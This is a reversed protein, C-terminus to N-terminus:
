VCNKIKQGRIEHVKLNVVRSRLFSTLGGKGGIEQFLSQRFRRQCVFFKFFFSLLEPMKKVNNYM